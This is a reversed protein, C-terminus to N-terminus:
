GTLLAAAAANGYVQEPRKVGPIVCQVAEHRLCWAIAWQAMPVGEPVENQQIAEVECLWANRQDQQHWAGRMENAAFTAGPKYKGSLYGSALPVRAMVGVGQALCVPLMTTEQERRLRNYVLQIAEVGRENSLAIQESWDGTGPVSNGVHLVKGQAKAKELVAMVDDHLFAATPWSHYQYLDVRDTQLAKLSGELQEIVDAPSRADVREFPKIFQDGFKTALIWRDRDTKIAEGILRESVHDGYCEATDILNIGCDRAADFITNVEEQTYDIGWEGGFQWTGLGIVSVNLGTPGLTRYHM